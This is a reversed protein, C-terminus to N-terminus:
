EFAHIDLTRKNQTQTTRHTPLPRAVSQDSTWPTRGVTYSLKRSQLLPWPGVFPQLAMPSHIFSNIFSSPECMHLTIAITKTTVFINANYENQIQM